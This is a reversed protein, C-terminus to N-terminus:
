FPMQENTTDLLNSKLNQAHLKYKSVFKDSIWKICKSKKFTTTFSM